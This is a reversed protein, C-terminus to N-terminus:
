VLGTAEIEALGERPILVMSWYMHRTDSAEVQTTHEPVDVTDVPLIGTETLICPLYDASEVLENVADIDFDTAEIVVFPRDERLIRTAGRLVQVDKGEADVLLIGVPEQIHDDLTVVEVQHEDQHERKFTPDLSASMHLVDTSNLAPVYLTATGPTDSVALQHLHVRSSLGSAALNDRLRQAAPPFPEYAEVPQGTSRALLMSYYGSNAGVVVCVADARVPLRVLVDPLPQEWSNAGHLWLHHAVLDRPHSTHMVFSGAPHDVHVREPLHDNAALFRAFRGKRNRDAMGAAMHALRPFRKLSGDLTAPVRGTLM